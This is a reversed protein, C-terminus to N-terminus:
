PRNYKNKKAVKMWKLLYKMINSKDNMEIQPLVLYYRLERCVLEAYENRKEARTKSM